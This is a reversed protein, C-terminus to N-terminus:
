QSLGSSTRRSGVSRIKDSSLDKRTTIQNSWTLSTARHNVNHIMNIQISPTHRLDKSWEIFRWLDKRLLHSNRRQPVNPLNCM